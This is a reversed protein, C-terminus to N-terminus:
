GMGATDAGPVYPSGFIRRRLDEAGDKMQDALDMKDRADLSDNHDDLIKMMDEVSKHRETDCIILKTIIRDDLGRYSGDENEVLMVNVAKATDMCSGGGVAVLCDCGAKRYIEAVKGVVKDSSDM